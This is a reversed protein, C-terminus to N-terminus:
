LGGIIVGDGEGHPLFVCLVTEGVNPLWKGRKLVALPASILSSGSVGPKDSFSVRATRNIENVSSVRGVRILSNLAAENLTDDTGATSGLPYLKNNLASRAFITGRPYTMESSFHAIVRGRVEVPPNLDTILNDYSMEGIKNNLNVDAM